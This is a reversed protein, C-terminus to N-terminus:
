SATGLPDEQIRQALYHFSLSVNGLTIVDGDLLFVQEGVRRGNVFSGNLSGLDKFYVFYLNGMSILEILAHHRSVCESALVINSRKSRGIKWTTAGELLVRKSGSDLPISLQPVQSSPM